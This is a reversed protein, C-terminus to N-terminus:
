GCFLHRYVGEGRSKAVVQSEKIESLQRSYYGNLQTYTVAFSVAAGLLILALAILIKQLKKM